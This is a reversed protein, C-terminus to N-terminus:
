VRSLSSAITASSLQETQTSCDGRNSACFAMPIAVIAWSSLNLMEYTRQLFQKHQEFPDSDSPMSPFPVSFTFYITSIIDTARTKHENSHRPNNYRRTYMEPEYDDFM